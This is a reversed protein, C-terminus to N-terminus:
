FRVGALDTAHPLSSKPMLAWAFSASPRAKQRNAISYGQSISYLVLNILFSQTELTTSKLNDGNVTIIIVKQM